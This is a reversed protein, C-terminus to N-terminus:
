RYRLNKRCYEYSINLVYALDFDPVYYHLNKSHYFTNQNPTLEINSVVHVMM